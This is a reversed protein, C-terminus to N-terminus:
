LLEHVNFHKVVKWTISVADQNVRVLLHDRQLGDLRDEDVHCNYQRRVYSHM